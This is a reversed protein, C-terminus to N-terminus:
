TEEGRGGLWGWGVMVWGFGGWMYNVMGGV